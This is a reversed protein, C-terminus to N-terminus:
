GFEGDVICYLKLRWVSGVLVSEDMKDWLSWCRYLGGLEEFEM